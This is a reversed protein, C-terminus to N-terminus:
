AAGSQDAARKQKRKLAIVVILALHVFLTVPDIDLTQTPSKNFAPLHHVDSFHPQDQMLKLVKDLKQSLDSALSVATSKDPAILVALLDLCQMLLPEITSVQNQFSVTRQRAQFRAETRGRFGPGERKLQEFRSKMLALRQELKTLKAEYASWKVSQVSPKPATPAQVVLVRLDRTLELLQVRLVELDQGVTM